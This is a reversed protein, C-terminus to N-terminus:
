CYHGTKKKDYGVVQFEADYGVGNITHEGPTHLRTENVQYYVQYQPTQVLPEAQYWGGLAGETKPKITYVYNTLAAEDKAIDASLWSTLFAFKGTNWDKVLGGITTVMDRPSQPPYSSGQCNLFAWDDGHNDYNWGENTALVVNVLFLSLFLKTLM